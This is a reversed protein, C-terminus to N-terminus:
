FESVIINMIGHEMVPVHQTTSDALPCSLCFCNWLINWCDAYKRTEAQDCYVYYVTSERQWKPRIVNQSLKALM